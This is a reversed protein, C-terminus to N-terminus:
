NRWFFGEKKKQLVYPQPMCGGSAVVHVRSLKSMDHGVSRGIEPFNYLLFKPWGLSPPPIMYRIMLFLCTTYGNDINYITYWLM